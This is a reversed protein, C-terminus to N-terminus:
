SINCFCPIRYKSIPFQFNSISKLLPKLESLDVQYFFLLKLSDLIVSIDGNLEVLMQLLLSVIPNSVKTPYNKIIETLMENILALKDESTKNMDQMASNIVAKFIEPYYFSYYFVSKGKENKRFIDIDPLSLLYLIIEIKNQKASYMLPTKGNIFPQNIIEKDKSNSLLSKVLDHNSQLFAYYFSNRGFNDQIFPNAKSISLLKNVITNMSNQISYILATKGDADQCDILDTQQKQEMYELIALSLNQKNEKIASLLLYNEKQSEFSNSINIQFDILNRSLIDLIFKENNTSLWPLFADLSIISHQLLINFIETNFNQLSEYFSQRTVLFGEKLLFNLLKQNQAIVAGSLPDFIGFYDPNGKLQILEDNIPRLFLSYSRNKSIEYFLNSGDKNKKFIDITEIHILYNFLEFNDDRVSQSVVTFGNVNWGNLQYEDSGFVEMIKKAFPINRSNSFLSSNTQSDYIISKGIEDNSKTKNNSTNELYKELLDDFIDHKLYFAAYHMANNGNHDIYEINNKSKQLYAYSNKNLKLSEILLFPLKEILSQTTSQNVGAVLAKILSANNYFNSNSFYNLFLDFFGPNRDLLSTINIKMFYGIQNDNFVKELKLEDKRNLFSNVYLSNKDNNLAICFPHIDFKNCKNIDTMPDSILFTFVDTLNEIISKTLPTQGDNMCKNINNKNHSIIYILNQPTFTNREVRKQPSIYSLPQHRFSFQKFANEIASIGKINPIQNNYITNLIKKSPCELLLEQIIKQDKNLKEIKLLFLFLKENEFKLSKDFLLKFNHHIDDSCSQVIRNNSLFQELIQSCNNDIIFLLIEFFNIDINPNEILKSLISNNIINKKNKVAELIISEISTNRRIELNPISLIYDLDNLIFKEMRIKLSFVIKFFDDNIVKHNTISILHHFIHKAIIMKSKSISFTLLDVFNQMLVNTSKMYESKLIEELLQTMNKDIIFHLIPQNSILINRFDFHIENFYNFISLPIIFKSRSAIICALSFIKSLFRQFTENNNFLVNIRKILFDFVASNNSFITFIIVSKLLYFNASDFCNVAKMSNKQYINYFHTFSKLSGSAASSFLLSDKYYFSFSNLLKTFELNNNLASIHMINSSFSSRQAAYPLINIFAYANKYIIATILLKEFPINQIEQDTLNNLFWQLSNNRGHSIINKIFSKKNGSSLKNNICIHIIELNGGCLAYLFPCKKSDKESNPHVSANEAILYKFINLSGFYAACIIPTPNNRLLKFKCEHGLQLPNNINIIHKSVLDQFLELRDSKIIELINKDNTNKQKSSDSKLPQNNNKSIPYLKKEQNFDSAILNFSKKLNMRSKTISSIDEDNIINLKHLAQMYYLNSGKTISDAMVMEKFIVKFSDGVSDCFFKALQSFTSTMNRRQKAASLILWSVNENTIKGSQLQGLLINQITELDSSNLIQEQMDSIKLIEIYQQNYSEIFDCIEGIGYIFSFIRFNKVNDKCISITEGKMLLDFSNLCDQDMCQALSEYSPINYCYKTNQFYKNPKITIESHFINPIPTYQIKPPDNAPAQNITKKLGFGFTKKVPKCKNILFENENSDKELRLSFTVQCDEFLEVNHIIIRDDSCIFLKDNCFPKLLSIQNLFKISPDKKPTSLGSSFGLTPFFKEIYRQNLVPYQQSIFIDKQSNPLLLLFTSNKLFVDRTSFCGAIDHVPTFNKKDNNYQFYIKKSQQYSIFQFNEYEFKLLSAQSYDSIKLPNGSLSTLCKNYNASSRIENENSSNFIWVQFSDNPNLHKLILNSQTSFGVKINNDYSVVKQYLPMYFILPVDKPISNGDAFFLHFESYKNQIFQLKDDFFSLNINDRGLKGKIFQFQQVKNEKKENSIIDDLDLFYDTKAANRITYLCDYEQNQPNTTNFIFHQMENQIDFYDLFLKPKENSADLTVALHSKANVFIVLCVKQGDLYNM